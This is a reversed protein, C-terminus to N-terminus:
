SSTAIQIEVRGDVVRSPHAPVRVSEDDLSVGTELCFAQKFLPSAVKPRGGADGLIGRSLVNAGSYPDHNGLSYIEGKFNFVAVHQGDVLAAVGTNPAIDAVDCITRWSSEPNKSM